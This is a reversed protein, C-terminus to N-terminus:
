RAAIMVTALRVPTSGPSRWVTAMGQNVFCDTPGLRVPVDGGFDVEAEGELVVVLDLTGGPQTARAGTAIELHRWSAGQGIPGAAVDGEFTDGGQLPGSLAGGTEYLLSTRTADATRGCPPASDAVIVSRGQGDIGTVVRRPHTGSGPRPALDFASPPAGETRLMLASYTCAKEGVVRWRHRTGRQVVFDGSALRVYGRDVELEIEGDLIVEFDITDTTHMGVKEGSFRHDNADHLFQEERPLAPDPLPLRIVRWTLGGPEPELVFPGRPPDFGDDVRAPPGSLTWLDACGFGTPSQVINTPVGDDARVHGDADIRLVVRRVAFLDPEGV